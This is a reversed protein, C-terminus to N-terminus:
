PSVRMGHRRPFITCVNPAFTAGYPDHQGVEGGRIKRFPSRSTM